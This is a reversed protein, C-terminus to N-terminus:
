ERMTIKYAMQGTEDPGSQWLETEISLLAAGAQEICELVTPLRDALWGAAQRYDIGAAILWAETTWSLCPGSIDPTRWPDLYLSGSRAHQPDTSVSIGAQAVRAAVSV